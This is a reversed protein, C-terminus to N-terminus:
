MLKWLNCVFVGKLVFFCYIFIFLSVSEDGRYPASKRSRPLQCPKTLKLLQCPLSGILGKGPHGASAGCATLNSVQLSQYKCVKIILFNQGPTVAVM